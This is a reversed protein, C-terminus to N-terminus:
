KEEGMMLLGTDFVGSPTPSVFDTGNSTSTATHEIADGNRFIITDGVKVTLEGPNYFPAEQGIISVEKPQGGSSNQQQQQQQQTLARQQQEQGQPGGTVAVDFVTSATGFVYNSVPLSNVDTAITYVGPEPFVTDFAIQGTHGHFAGNMPMMPSGAEASQLLTFDGKKITFLADPHTVHTGNIPNKVNLILRVPEGAIVENGQQKTTFELNVKTGNESANLTVNEKNNNNKDTTTSIKTLGNGGGTTSLGDDASNTQVINNSAVQNDVNVKFEVNRLGFFFTPDTQWGMMPDGSQFIRTQAMAPVEMGMMKPGLSAVQVSIIYEGEKVPAFSIRETGIHSHVTSSQFIKNGAPDVIKILWDVHTLPKGTNQDTINMNLTALGTQPNIEPRYSLNVGDLSVREPSGNNNNSGDTSAAVIQIIGLDLSEARLTETSSVSLANFVVGFLILCSIPITILIARKKKRNQNQNITINDIEKMQYWFM